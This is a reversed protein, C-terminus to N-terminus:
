ASSRGYWSREWVWATAGGQAMLMVGENIYLEDEQKLIM